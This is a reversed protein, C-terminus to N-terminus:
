HYSVSLTQKKKRFRNDSLHSFPNGDIILHSIVRTFEDNTREPSEISNNNNNVDSTESRDYFWTSLNNKGKIVLSLSRSRILLLVFWPSLRRRTRKGIQAKLIEMRTHTVCRSRTDISSNVIAVTHRRRAFKVSLRHRKISFESRQRHESSTIWGRLQKTTM